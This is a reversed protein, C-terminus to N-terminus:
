KNGTDASTNFGIIDPFLIFSILNLTFLFVSLKSKSKLPFSSYLCM